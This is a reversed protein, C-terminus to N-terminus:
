RSPTAKNIRLFKPCISPNLSTRKEPVIEDYSVFSEDEEEMTNETDDIKKTPKSEIIYSANAENTDDYTYDLKAEDMKKVRDPDVKIGDGPMTSVEVVLDGDRVIFKGSNSVEYKKGNRKVFKKKEWGSLALNERILGAVTFFIVLFAVIAVLPWKVYDRQIIDLFILYGQSM